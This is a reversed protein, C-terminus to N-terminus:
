FDHTGRIRRTHVGKKLLREKLDSPQDYDYVKWEFQQKIKKYYAIQEEIVCDANSENM